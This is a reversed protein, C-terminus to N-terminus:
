GNERAYLMDDIANFTGLLAYTEALRQAKAHAGSSSAYQQFEGVTEIHGNDFAERVTYLRPSKWDFQESTM